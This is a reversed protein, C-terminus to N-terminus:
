LFDVKNMEIEAARIATDIAVKEIYPAKQLENDLLRAFYYSKFIDFNTAQQHLNIHIKYVRNNNLAKRIKRWKKDILKIHYVFNRSEVKELQKLVSHTYYKPKSTALVTSICNAGYKIFACNNKNMFNPLYFVEEKNIEHM